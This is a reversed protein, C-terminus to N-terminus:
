PGDSAHWTDPYEKLVVDQDTAKLRAIFDRCPPIPVFDDSIGHFM